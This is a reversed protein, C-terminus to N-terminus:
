RLSHIHVSPGGFGWLVHGERRTPQSGGGPGLATRGCPYCRGSRRHRRRGSDVGALEGSRTRDVGGRRAAAPLRRRRHAAVLEPSASAWQVLRDVWKARDGLDHVTTVLPDDLGALVEARTLPPRFQVVGDGGFTFVSVPVDLWPQRRRTPEEGGEPLVLTLARDGLHGLGFALALDLHRQAEGPWGVVVLQDTSAFWGFRASL